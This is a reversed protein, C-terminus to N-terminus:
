KKGYQDCREGRDKCMSHSRCGKCPDIDTFQNLLNLIEVKTMDVMWSVEKFNIMRMMLDREEETLM